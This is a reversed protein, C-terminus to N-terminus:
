KQFFFTTVLYLTLKQMRVCHLLYIGLIEAGRAFYKQLNVVFLCAFFDYLSMTLIDIEEHQVQAFICDVFFIYNLRHFVILISVSFISKRKEKGFGFFFIKQKHTNKKWKLFQVSFIKEWVKNWAIKITESQSKAKRWNGSLPWLGIELKTM